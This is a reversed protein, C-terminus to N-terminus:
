SGYAEPGTGASYFYRQGATVHGFDGASYERRGIMTEPDTSAFKKTIRM